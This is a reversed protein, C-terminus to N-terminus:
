ADRIELTVIFPKANNDVIVGEESLVRLNLQHIDGVQLKKYIPCPLDIRSAAHVHASDPIVTLLTSPAGDVLNSSTSLQDLHIYLLKPPNPLYAPRDGIYTGTISTEDFGLIENLGNFLDLAGNTGKVTLTVIGTKESLQITINPVLDKITKILEKISYFGPPIIYNSADGREDDFTTYFIELPTPVNHYGVVYNLSRIAVHLKGYKNCIVPNVLAVKEDNIKTVTVFM